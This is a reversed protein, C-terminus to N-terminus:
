TEAWKWKFGQTTKFKNDCCRYITKTYFGMNKLEKPNYTGLLENNINYMVIDKQEIRNSGKANNTYYAPIHTPITDNQKYFLWMYNKFMYQKNNKQNNRCCKLIAGSSYGLQRLKVSSFYIQIFKGDLNYQLIKKKNDPISLITGLQENDYYKWYYGFSMRNQNKCAAHINNTRLNPYKMSLEVINEFIELVIGNNDYKVIPRKESIMSNRRESNYIVGSNGEGGDTLNALTGLGLDRRGIKNIFYRELRFATYESINEYLKIVIPNKNNIKIKDIIRQKLKNHKDIVTSHVKYRVGKGKGVYFPEYNVKTRGFCFEGQKLPNLYIYVYYNFM